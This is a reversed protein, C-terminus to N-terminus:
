YSEEKNAQITSPRKGWIPHLVLASLFLFQGFFSYLSRRPYLVESTMNAALMAVFFCLYERAMIRADSFVSHKTIWRARKWLSVLLWLWIAFGFAGLEFLVHVYCNHAGGWGTEYGMGWILIGPDNAIRSLYRGYIRVRAESLRTPDLGTPTQMKDIQKQVQEQGAEFPAEGFALFLALLGVVVGVIALGRQRSFLLSTAGYVGVALIGTRSHSNFLPYILLGSCLAMALKSGFSGLMKSKAVLVALAAVMYLRLQLHHPAMTGVYYDSYGTEGIDWFPKLFGLSQLSSLLGQILAGALFVDLLLNVRRKTMPLSSVFIFAFAFGVLRYWRLGAQPIALLGKSLAVVLISFLCFGAFCLLPTNIPTRAIILPRGMLADALYALFIGTIVLDFLRFGHEGMFQYQVVPLCYTYSLVLIAMGAFRNGLILIFGGLGILVLISPGPFSGTLIFTGGMLVAVILVAALAIIGIPISPQGIGTINREGASLRGTM